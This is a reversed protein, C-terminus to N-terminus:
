RGNPNRPRLRPPQNSPGAGLMRQVAAIHSEVQARQAELGQLAAALLEPNLSLNPMDTPSGPNSEVGPDPSWTVGTLSDHLPAGNHSVSVFSASQHM